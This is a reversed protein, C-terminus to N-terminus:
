PVTSPHSVSVWLEVPCCTRARCLSAWSLCTVWCRPIRTPTEPFIEQLKDLSHGLSWPPTLKVLTHSPMEPSPAVCVPMLCCSCAIIRTEGARKPLDTLRESRHKEFIWTCGSWRHSEPARPYTWIRGKKRAGLPHCHQQDASWVPLCLAKTNQLESCEQKKRVMDSGGRLYGTTFGSGQRSSPNQGLDCLRLHYSQNWLRPKRVQHIWHEKLYAKMRTRAVDVHLGSKSKPGAQADEAKGIYNAHKNDM